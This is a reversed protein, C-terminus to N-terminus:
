TAIKKACIYCIFNKHIFVLTGLINIANITCIRALLFIIVGFVCLIRRCSASSGSTVNSPFKFKRCNKQSAFLLPRSVGGDRRHSVAIDKLILYNRCGWLGAARVRSRPERLGGECSAGKGRFSKLDSRESGALSNILLTFDFFLLTLM